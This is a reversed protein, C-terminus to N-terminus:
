KKARTVKIEAPGFYLHNMIDVVLPLTRALPAESLYVKVLEAAEEPDTGGGILALRVTETLDRHHFENAILRRFIAGVGAGLQRELELVMPATLRFAKQGDGLFATHAPTDSM